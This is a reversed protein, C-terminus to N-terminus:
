KGASPAVEGHSRDLGEPVRYTVEVVPQEEGVELGGLAPEFLWLSKRGPLPQQPESTPRHVKGSTPDAVLVSTAEFDSLSLRKRVIVEWDYRDWAGFEKRYYWVEVRWIVFPAASPLTTKRTTLEEVLARAETGRGQLLLIRRRDAFSTMGLILRRIEARDRERLDPAQAPVGRVRLNVGEIRGRRTLLVLDYLGPPLGEARFFDEGPKAGAQAALRYATASEREVAQAARVEQAPSVRLRIEGARVAGASAAGLVMAAAVVAL